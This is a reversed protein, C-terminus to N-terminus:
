GTPLHKKTEGKYQKTKLINPMLNGNIMKQEIPIRETAIKGNLYKEIMLSTIPAAWTAGYGANEVVVSVAIKPNDKPAFAIFLSHNEGHPNQATGTKGCITIEPLKAIRGTGAEVVQYMGEIIPEFYISDIGVFHRQVFRRNASDPHAIAKVIHPTYYYGKNAIICTMNALQLPTTGLEGQGISLSIVSLSKWRDKGHFRDYYQSSPVNGRVENDLDSGLKKGFGFAMVMNRWVEYGEKVTKYENKDVISRFVRCYYTNCSHQVSQPLNLPSPHGHCGVKVGGFVFAGPCSYSTEKKLVGLQEGILANVVKFTSGPPYQAMLARDFLPKLPDHLLKTYNEARVRGVLLNPNYSPSSVVALIEGTKPEIAVISGIKNQMLREGYQQLEIDLSSYLDKGSIAITDFAGDQYSGKERNHVDVITIKVGKRGRLEEEYAKEIGSIGIYDGSKYYPNKKTIDPSVEGIYGLVHAAIPIPYKRITRPQVYFGPFKYLKEQLYGYIEKSFQKEFVSPKYRSYSRAKEFNAKFLAKDIGIIKCLETTDINKALNPVVLLDYVAENYIILKGKRDYVLGRPPYETVYRLVNNNASLKYTDDIVQIYFLRLWYIFGIGIVILLIIKQRNSYVNRMEFVPNHPM